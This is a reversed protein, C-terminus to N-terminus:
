EGITKAVAVPLWDQVNIGRKKKLYLTALEAETKLSPETWLTRKVFPYGLELLERWAVLAPNQHAVGLAGAPFQAKWGYAGAISERAVSAEYTFVVDLKSKQSRVGDFFHRWALDGLIGGKFHMFYSQVSHGVQYSDTLAVVSATSEEVDAMLDKLSAFPGVMSDNTLLVNEAKRIFPLANLAAAWSGFDYGINRRRVVVASDALGHPWELPAQSNGTFVVLSLYGAQELEEIYRSLSLSMINGADWSAIVAIRDSSSLSEPVGSEPQLYAGLGSIVPPVAITRAARELRRLM